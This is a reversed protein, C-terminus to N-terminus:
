FPILFCIHSFLILLKLSFLLINKYLFSLNFKSLFNYKDYIFMKILPSKDETRIVKNHLLRYNQCSSYIQMFNPNENALIAFLDTRLKIFNNNNNNNNNNYFFVKVIKWLLHLFFPACTFNYCSIPIYKNGNRILLWLSM